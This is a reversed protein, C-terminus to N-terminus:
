INHVDKVVICDTQYILIYIFENIDDIDINRFTNM